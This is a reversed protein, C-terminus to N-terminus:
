AARKKAATIERRLKRLLKACEAIIRKGNEIPRLINWCRLCLDHFYIPEGSKGYICIGFNKVKRSSGVVGCLDCKRLWSVDFNPIWNKRNGNKYYTFHGTVENGMGAFEDPDGWFSFRPELRM